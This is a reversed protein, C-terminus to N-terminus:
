IQRLTGNLKYFKIIQKNVYASRPCYTSDHNMKSEWMEAMISDDGMGIWREAALRDILLEKTIPLKLIHSARAWWFNGYYLPKRFRWAAKGHRKLNGGRLCVGCTDAKELISLALDYREILFYEMMKRWDQKCKFRFDPVSKELYGKNTVGKTHLYLILSDPNKEAFKKINCLTPWEYRKPDVREIVNYPVYWPLSDSGALVCNISRAKDFLGSRLLRKFQDLVVYQWCNVTCIHIFIDVPNNVM